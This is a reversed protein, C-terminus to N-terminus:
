WNTNMSLGLSWETPMASPAIRKRPRLRYRSPNGGPAVASIFFASDKETEGAMASRESPLETFFYADALNWIYILVLFASAARVSDYRNELTARQGSYSQDYTYFYAPDALQSLSPYGPIFGQDALLTNQFSFPNDASELEAAQSIYLRNTEYVGYAAGAFLVTFGMGKWTDGAYWQGWGPILASRWLIDMRGVRQSNGPDKNEEESNKIHSNREIEDEDEKEKEKREQGPEQSSDHQDSAIDDEEKKETTRNANENTESNEMQRDKDSNDSNNPNQSSDSEVEAASDDTSDQNKRNLLRRIEEENKIGTVDEERGVPEKEPPERLANYEVRLIRKKSINLIRDGTHIRLSSQDQHLIRGYVTSGNRLQVTDAGLNSAVLLSLLFATVSILILRNRNGTINGNGSNSMRM